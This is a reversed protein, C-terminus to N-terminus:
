RISQLKIDTFYFNKTGTNEIPDLSKCKVWFSYTKNNIRYNFNYTLINSINDNETITTMIQNYVQGTSKNNVDFYNTYNDKLWANNSDTIFSFLGINDTSSNGLLILVLQGLPVETNNINKKLLDLISNEKFALPPLGTNPDPRNEGGLNRYFEFYKEDDVPENPNTIIEYLLSIVDRNLITILGNTDNLLFDKLQALDFNIGQGKDDYQKIWKQFINDKINNFANKVDPSDLLNIVPTIIMDELVEQLQPIAHILAPLATSSIVKIDYAFANGPGDKIYLLERIIDAIKNPDEILAGIHDIIDAINYSNANDDTPYIKGFTLNKAGKTIDSMQLVYQKLIPVVAEILTIIYSPNELLHSLYQELDPMFYDDISPPIAIKLHDDIINGLYRDKYPEQKDPDPNVIQYDKGIQYFLHNILVGGRYFNYDSRSWSAATDSDFDWGSDDNWQSYAKGSDDKWNDMFSKLADADVPTSQTPTWLGDVLNNLLSTLPNTITKTFNDPDPHAWDSGVVINKVLVMATKLDPPFDDPNELKMGDLFRVISSKIDGDDKILNYVLRNDAVNLGSVLSITSFVSNITKYTNVQQTLTGSGTPVFYNDAVPDFGSIEINKEFGWKDTFDQWTSLSSGGTQDKISPNSFEALIDQITQSTDTSKEKALVLSKLVSSTQDTFSKIVASRASDVYFNYVCATLPLALSGTALFIALKQFVKKM